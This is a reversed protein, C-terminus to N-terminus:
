DLDPLVPGPGKCRSRHNQKTITSKVDMWMVMLAQAIIVGLVPPFVFPLIVLWNLQVQWRPVAPEPGASTSCSNSAMTQPTFEPTADRREGSYARLRPRRQRPNRRSLLHGSRPHAVSSSSSSPSALHLTRRMM